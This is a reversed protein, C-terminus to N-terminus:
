AGSSQENNHARSERLSCQSAAFVLKNIKNGAKNLTFFFFGDPKQERWVIWWLSSPQGPKSPLVGRTQINGDRQQGVSCAALGCPTDGVADM